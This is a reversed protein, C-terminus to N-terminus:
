QAQAYRNLFAAMQGRSVGAVPRFTGDDFGRSVGRAALWEVETGFVYGAPVDRFSPQAPDPFAPSGDYRYLFAAMQGRAVTEEPRFATGGAVPSGVTIGQGRLWEVAAFHTHGVPVDVFSPAAPPTFAPQGASRYLFAAMQGRSVPRAPGYTGDPFGRTIGSGVLAEVDAFYTSGVPVDSFRATPPTAPADDVAVSLTLPDLEQQEPTTYFADFGSARAGEETLTAPVGILHVVHGRVVPQVASLDLTAFAVDDHREAPAPPAGPEMSTLPRTLLDVVLVGEDGDVQVQPSSFTVDLVPGNGSDHGTFRVAGTFAAALADEGLTGTGGPFRFTGDDNRTAGDSTTAAGRAISGTVYTRFSSKVGWDLLGDTIVDGAPLPDPVPDPEAAGFTVPVALEHEAVVAGSAAYTYVGYAGSGAETPVADLEATFSGDPQLTVLQSQVSPSAMMPASRAADTVAWKQSTVTRASSPAGQSPRWTEAFRGFVVYVGAPQGALPPRTGVGAAPDFGTGTVTITESDALGATKSVALAPAPATSASAAPLGLLALTSALVTVAVALRGFRPLVRPRTRSTHM